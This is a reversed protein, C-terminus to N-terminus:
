WVHGVSLGDLIEVLLGLNTEDAIAHTSKIPFSNNDSCYMIDLEGNEENIVVDVNDSDYENLEEEVMSGVIEALRDAKPYAKSDGVTKIREDLETM